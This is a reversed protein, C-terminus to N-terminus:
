CLIFDIDFLFPGEARDAFPGKDYQEYFIKTSAPPTSGRAEKNIRKIIEPNYIDSVNVIPLIM